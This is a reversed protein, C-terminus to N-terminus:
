NLLGRIIRDRVGERIADRARDQLYQSIDPKPVAEGLKGEYTFPFSNGVQSNLKACGPVTM